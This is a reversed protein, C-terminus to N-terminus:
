LSMLLYCLAETMAEKYTSGGERSFIYHKDPRETIRWRVHGKENVQAQIPILDLDLTKYGNSESQPIFRWGEETSALVRGAAMILSATSWLNRQAALVHEWVANHKHENLIHLIDGRINGTFAHAFWAKLMPSIDSLLNAHQTHWYTTHRHELDFGSRESACPYWHILIGSRWLRIFAATDLKVNWEMHNSLSGANLSVFRTKRAVLERDRNIAAAIIRASGVVSIVTKEDSSQLLDLLLEVSAQERVPRDKITDMEDTLPDLPGCVVPVTRGMMYNMQMVSLFGPDRAIDYGLPAAHLFKKTADLLVAKLEIEPLAYITALDFHDDPDQPPHYLDTIHILPIKAM